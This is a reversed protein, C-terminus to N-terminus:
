DGGDEKMGSVVDNEHYYVEFPDVNGGEWTLVPQEVEGESPIYTPYQLDWLQKEVKKVSDRMRVLSGISGPINGMIYLLSKEEDIRVVRQNLVTASQNGLRGAM